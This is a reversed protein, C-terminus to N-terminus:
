GPPREHFYNYVAKATAANIGAVQELDVLSAREIAKLTGFHRLLARKRTPGVGAIAQLGAETIDKKRRARHSGIAFRHAEDRLRQIFYLVPDRPEMRFPTRGPLFFQERGAERDLGKAIGVLPVDTIGLEDLVTRAANLQGLGGDILVLDPWPSAEAADPLADAEEPDRGPPEDPEASSPGAEVPTPVVPGAFGGDHGPMVPPSAIDAGQAVGAAGSAEPDQVGGAAEGAGDVAGEGAGERPAEKLLRSFRRRLVERMMGFDDGPVIDASKINFKRYQSKRFGEPGAVIMGGVANTGMIHSNDYVEIRQPTAKLGFTAAVGELLKAQTASEALTRALAERANQLAHDVLDRKEGRQPAAIEIRYGTKESLAEALLAQEEVKHSLLILRPCPKDEYFQALFAGLVEAESLSRDARPYYARNGWNQGTRFFFVEVCTAGGQQHCAFVDAEEVGRPNIGQSGQVASLAALRDRLRAAREFELEQSAAEMELALEEKIARSRGSLFARAERVLEAYDTHSVEGTCPGACRKIQHLLCPRTRNEYYSDSCSRLLFARELANITRDVAWVSAFPGYYDGPRNRAGRHKTIQPAVHDATILIYPFSKDDRLLVNFRPKLQKVLNAELLLAESETRTSVFEMSATAAIMRAIRNTHGVPRTYSLVRKKISKAKGVYLVSSDAAIMRYVGPGAPAHKVARIIADRGSALSEAGPPPAETADLILLDTEDAAEMEDSEPAPTAQDDRAFAIEPPDIPRRGTM